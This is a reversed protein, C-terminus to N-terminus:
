QSTGNLLITLHNGIQQNTLSRHKQSKLLEIILAWRAVMHLIDSFKIGHQRIQLPYTFNSYMIYQLLSREFNAVHEEVLVLDRGELGM